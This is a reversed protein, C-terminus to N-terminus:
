RQVQVENGRERSQSTNLQHNTRRDMCTYPKTKSLDTNKPPHTFIQLNLFVNETGAKLGEAKRQSLIVEDAFLRNIKIRVQM